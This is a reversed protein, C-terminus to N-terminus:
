IHNKLAQTVLAKGSKSNWGGGKEESGFWNKEANTIDHVRIKLAFKECVGAPKGKSVKRGALPSM